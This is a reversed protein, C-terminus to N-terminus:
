QAAFFYADKESSIDLIRCLKLIETATFETKNNIKNNLSQYSIGIRRSVEVQNLGKEIIRAKILNTNTLVIVGGRLIALDAISSCIIGSCLWKTLVKKSFLLFINSLNDM